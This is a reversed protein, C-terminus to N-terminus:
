HRYEREADPSQDIPSRPRSGHHVFVAIVQGEIRWRVLAWFAADARCLM